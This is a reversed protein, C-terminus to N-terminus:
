LTIQPNKINSIKETIFDGFDALLSKENLARKVEPIAVIAEFMDLDDKNMNQLYKIIKTKFENEEAENLIKELNENAEDIRSCYEKIPDETVRDFNTFLFRKIYKLYINSLSEEKQESIEKTIDTFFKNNHDTSQEVNQQQGNGQDKLINNRIGLIYNFEDITEDGFNILRDKPIKTIESVNFGFAVSLDRTRTSKEKDHQLMETIKNIRELPDRTPFNNTKFMETAEELNKRFINDIIAVELRPERGNDVEKELFDRIEDFFDNIFNIYAQREIETKYSLTKPGLRVGHPRWSNSRWDEHEDKGVIKIIEANIIKQILDSNSNKSSDPSLISLIHNDIENPEPEVELSILRPMRFRHDDHYFNYSILKNKLRKLNEAISDITNEGM